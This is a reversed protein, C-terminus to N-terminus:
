PFEQHLPYGHSQRTALWLNAASLNHYCDAEEKDRVWQQSSSSTNLHHSHSEKNLKYPTDQGSSAESQSDTVLMATCCIVFHKPKVRGTSSLSTLFMNQTLKHQDRYAVEGSSHFRTSDPQFPPLISDPQNIIYSVVQITDASENFM